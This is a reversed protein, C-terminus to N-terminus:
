QPIYLTVATGPREAEAKIPSKIDLGYHKRESREFLVLREKVNKLGLGGKGQTDSNSFDDFKFGCGNDEVVCILSTDKLAFRINITGTEKLGEIGHWIANEIIPQLLMPPLFVENPNITDAIEINWSFGDKLRIEELMLYDELMRKESTLSVKNLEMDNLLGRLLRSFKTLYVDAEREKKYLLFYRISNLANFMFHPNIQSRLASIGAQTLQHAILTQKHQYRRVALTVVVTVSILLLVIMVKFGITDYPHIPIIFSYQAPSSAWVGHADRGLLEFSYAGPSLGQYSVLQKSTFRWSSDKGLLRYKFLVKGPEMLSNLRSYFSINNDTYKLTIADRRYYTYVSDGITINDILVKPEPIRPIIQDQIISFRGGSTVLVKAGDKSIFDIYDSVMGDNFGVHRISGIKDSDFSILNLGVNSGVWAKNGDLLLTRCLNSSLGNERSIVFSSDKGMILIGIGELIVWTRDFADREIAKIPNSLRGDQNGLFVARGDKFHYLGKETGVLFEQLDLDIDAVCDVELSFGFDISEFSIGNSDVVFFGRKTSGLVANKDKSCQLTKIYNERKEEGWMEGELTDSSLDSLNFLKFGAFVSGSPLWCVKLVKSNDNFGALIQKKIQVMGTSHIVGTHLVNGQIYRITDNRLSFSPSFSANIDSSSFSYTKRTFSPVRILGHHLTSLWYTNQDDKKISSIVKSKFYHGVLHAEDLSQYFHYLGGGGLSFFYDDGVNYAYLVTSPFVYTSYGGKGLVMGMSHHVIIKPRGASDTLVEHRNDRAVGLNFLSLKGQNIAWLSDSALVKPKNTDKFIGSIHDNGELRMSWVVVADKKVHTEFMKGPLARKLKGHLTAKFYYPTAYRTTLYINSDGQVEIQHVFNAEDLYNLLQKNFGPTVFRGKEFYCIGGKYTLFWLRDSGDRYIRFVTNDVLGDVAKYLTTNVGDFVAVGNDTAIWLNGRHDQQTDYVQNSPLGDEVTYNIAQFNETLGQSILPSVCFVHIAILLTYFKYLM